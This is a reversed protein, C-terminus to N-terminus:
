LLEVIDAMTKCVVDAGAASFDHSKTFENPVAVVRMGAAKGARVGTSTDEVVLCAEPEVGLKAAAVLYIEPDPKHKTVDDNSLVLDFHELGTMVTSHHIAGNLLKMRLDEGASSSAVAIKLGGARAASVLEDFGPYGGISGPESVLARFREQWGTIFMDPACDLEYLKVAQEADRQYGKGAWESGWVAHDVAPAGPKHEAVTANFSACYAAETDCLTGDCDFIVAATAPRSGETAM